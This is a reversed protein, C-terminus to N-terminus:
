LDGDLGLAAVLQVSGADLLTESRVGSLSTSGFVLGFCM